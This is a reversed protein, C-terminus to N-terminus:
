AKKRKKGIILIVLILLIALFVLIHKKSKYNNKKTGKRYQNEDTTDVNNTEINMTENEYKIINIKYDVRSGDEAIISIVINNDKKSLNTDGSVILKSKSDELKYDIRLKKVEKSLNVVYEFVKEDFVFDSGDIKIFVAKKNSSLEMLSKNNAYNNSYKSKNKDSSPANKDTKDSDSKKNRFINLVYTKEAGTEATVVIEFINNGYFLKKVGGGTIKSLSKTKIEISDSTTTISYNTIEPSFSPTIKEGVVELHKLTSDSQLRYIKIYSNSGITDSDGSVNKFAINANDGPHFNDLVKFTLTAVKKTGTIGDTSDLLLKKDYTCIFSDSECKSLELKSKDYSIDGIISKLNYNVKLTLDVIIEQENNITQNQGLSTKFVNNLPTLANVKISLTFFCVLAYIIYKVQKM